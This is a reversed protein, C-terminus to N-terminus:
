CRRQHYFVVVIQIGFSSVSALTHRITALSCYVMFVELTSIFKERHVQWDFLSHCLRGLKLRCQKLGIQSKLLCRLDYCMHNMRQSGYALAPEDPFDLELRELRPCLPSTLQRIMVSPVSTACRSKEVFSDGPTRGNKFRLQLSDLSKFHNLMM